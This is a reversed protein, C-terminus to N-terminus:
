GGFNKSAYDWNILHDLFASIYSPRDQQYDLYYAHEWVDITLLPTYGKTLPNEANGTSLIELKGAPSKALWAWGSGFQGAAVAALDKKMADMGGLDKDIAASLAASPESPKPAMSEWYFTHNWVQAALNFVGGDTERIIDELSKGALPKGGIAAELKTLYGKHHKTYHIEVTRPSIHPDLAEFSYPLPTLEFKM